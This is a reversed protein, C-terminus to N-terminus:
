KKTSVVVTNAWLDGLRQHKDTNKITLVGVLGFFSMDILDLLHRKLSQIFTLKEQNNKLSIAKLDVAYNGFTRGFWQEFGVTMIGWFLIPVLALFGTVTYGGENNPEGFYYIFTFTFAFIIIYDSIGALIRNGVNSKVKVDVNNM